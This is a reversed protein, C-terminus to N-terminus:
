YEIHTFRNRFGYCAYRNVAAFTVVIWPVQLNKLLKIVLNSRILVNKTGNLGNKSKM